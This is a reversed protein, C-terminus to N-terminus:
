NEDIGSEPLITKSVDVPVCFSSLQGNNIIANYSSRVEDTLPLAVYLTSSSEACIWLESLPTMIVYDDIPQQYNFEEKFFVVAKAAETDCTGMGVLYGADVEPRAHPASDM